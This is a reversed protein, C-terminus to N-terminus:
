IKRLKLKSCRQLQKILHRTIYMSAFLGVALEVDNQHFLNRSRTDREAMGMFKKSWEESSLSNKCMSRAILHAWMVCDGESYRELSKAYALLDKHEDFGGQYLAGLFVNEASQPPFRKYAIGYREDPVTGGYMVNAGKYVLGVAEAAEKLKQEMQIQDEGDPIAMSDIYEVIGNKRLCAAHHVFKGEKNYYIVPYFLAEISADRFDDKIREITDTSKIVYETKKVPLNEFMVDECDLSLWNEYLDAYPIANGM